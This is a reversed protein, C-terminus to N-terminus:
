NLPRFAIFSYRSGIENLKARGAGTVARSNNYVKFGDSTTEVGITNFANSAMACYGFISDDDSSHEQLFTGPRFIILFAPCFGLSITRTDAGTGTYGSVVFSNNWKERESQDIHIVTDRIHSGCLLEKDLFSHFNDDVEEAPCFDSMVTIYANMVLADTDRDSSISDCHSNVINLDSSFTLCDVVSTFVEHCESGGQSFPVHISLVVEIEATRCYEDRILVGEGNDTFHDTIGIKKIGVAVIPKKLPVAKYQPPYETLFKIGELTDQENLWSVISSPLTSITSM